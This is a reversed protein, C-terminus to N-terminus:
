KKCGDTTRSAGDDGALHSVIFEEQARGPYRGRHVKEVEGDPGLFVIGPVTVRTRSDVLGWEELQDRDADALIPFVLGLENALRRNADPSDDSLGVVVGGTDRVSAARESLRQLQGQCVGCWTGKMVVVAVRRGPAITEPAIADGNELQLTRSLEPARQIIVREVRIEEPSSGCTFFAAALGALALGLTSLFLLWAISKKSVIM